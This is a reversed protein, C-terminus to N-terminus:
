VRELLRGVILAVAFCSVAAMNLAHGVRPLPKETLKGLARLVLAVAVAPVLVVLAVAGIAFWILIAGWWLATFGLFGTSVGVHTRHGAATRPTLTRGYYFRM